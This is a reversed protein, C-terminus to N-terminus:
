NLYELEEELLKPTIAESINVFYKNITEKFRNHSTRHTAKYHGPINILMCGTYTYDSNYKKIM